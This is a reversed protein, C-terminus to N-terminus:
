TLMLVWVLSANIVLHTWQTHKVNSKIISKIYVLHIM